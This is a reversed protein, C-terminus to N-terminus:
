FQDMGNEGLKLPCLVANGGNVGCGFTHKETFIDYIFKSGKEFSKIYFSIFKTYYVACYCM